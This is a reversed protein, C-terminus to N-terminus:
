RPVEKNLFARRFIRVKLARPIFFIDGKQALDCGSAFETATFVFRM